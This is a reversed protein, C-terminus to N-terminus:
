KITQQGHARYRPLNYDMPRNYEVTERWAWTGDDLHVPYWAFWSRWEDDAMLRHQEREIAWPIGYRM